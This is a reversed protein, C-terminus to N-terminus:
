QFNIAICIASAHHISVQNYVNLFSSDLKIGDLFNVSLVTESSLQMKEEIAPKYELSRYVYVEELADAVWHSISSMDFSNVILISRL